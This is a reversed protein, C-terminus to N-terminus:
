KCLEEAEEVSMNKIKNYFFDEERVVIGKEDKCEELSSVNFCIRDNKEEYHKCRLKCKCRNQVLLKIREEKSLQKVLRRLENLNPLKSIEKYSLKEVAKLTQFPNNNIM